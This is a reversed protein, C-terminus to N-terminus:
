LKNNHSYPKIHTTLTKVFQYQPCLAMQTSIGNSNDICLPNHVIFFQRFSLCM